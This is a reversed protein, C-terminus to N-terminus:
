EFRNYTFFFTYIIEGRKLFAMILSIIFEFILTLIYVRDLITM